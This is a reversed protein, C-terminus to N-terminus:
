LPYDKATNAFIAAVQDSMKFRTKNIEISKEISGTAHRKGSAVWDIYMELLDVLNMGNIGDEFFEPHHRNHAYHHKLAPAMASLCAKYEESGYEMTKLKPTFETFVDVEARSLKSRDHTEGRQLLELAFVRLLRRIVDIHDRTQASTELEEYSPQRPPPDEFTEAQARAEEPTAGEGLVVPAQYGLDVEFAYRHDSQRARRDPHTARDRITGESTKM